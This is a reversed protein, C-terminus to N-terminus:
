HEAANELIKVLVPNLPAFSLSALCAFAPEDEEDRCYLGCTSLGQDKKRYEELLVKLFPLAAKTGLSKVRRVVEPAERKRASLKDLPKWLGRLEAELVPDVEALEPYRVPQSDSHRPSNLVALGCAVVAIVVAIPATRPLWHRTLPM